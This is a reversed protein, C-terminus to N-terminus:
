FRMGLKGSFVPVTYRDLQIAVFAQELFRINAGVVTHVGAIYASEVAGTDTIGNAGGVFAGHAQLIGAGAFLAVTDVNIGGIFDFGYSRTTMLNSINGTNMHVLFSASLPLFSAQYFGWRVMGGYQTLEDQRNYPTFQLFFDLNNFLGKGVTFKPFSIDQQPTTLRSGLRGLEDTPLNEISIGIELGAYGGLPYPDSLLKTSTGLGILRLAEERDAQDLNKPLLISAQAHSACLTAALSLIFSLLLKSM